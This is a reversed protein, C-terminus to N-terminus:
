KCAEHLALAMYYEMHKKYFDRQKTLTNMKQKLHQLDTFEQGDNYTSQDAQHVSVSPEEKKLCQIGAKKVWTHGTGVPIKMFKCVSSLSKGSKVKFVLDNKIKNSYKKSM